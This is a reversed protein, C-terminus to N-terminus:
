FLSQEYFAFLEKEGDEKKRRPRRPKSPAPETQPEDEIKLVVRGGKDIPELMEEDDASLPEGDGDLDARVQELMSRIAQLREMLEAPRFEGGAKRQERLAKRAGELRM